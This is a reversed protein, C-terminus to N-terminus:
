QLTEYDLVDDALAPRRALPGVIVDNSIRTGRASGPDRTSWNVGDGGDGEGLGCVRKLTARSMGHAVNGMPALSVPYETSPVDVLATHIPSEAGM